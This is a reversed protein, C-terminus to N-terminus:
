RLADASTSVVLWALTLLVSVIVVMAKLNGPHPDGHFVGDELLMKIFARAGRSALLSLDLGQEILAQRELPTYSPLYEQVLLRESSHAWYIRPIVVHPQQSFNAAVADCNLGEQTFDLEELM